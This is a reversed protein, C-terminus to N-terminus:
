PDPCGDEDEFGDRDEPTDPCRDLEDPIGDHDLDSGRGEPCGDSDEVGNFDEPESVCLDRDDPIGDADRDEASGTHKKKKQTAPEVSSTASATPERRVEVDATTATQTSSAGCGFLAACALWVAFGKRRM